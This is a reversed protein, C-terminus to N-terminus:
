SGQLRVGSARDFLMVHQPEFSIKIETGRALKVLGPFRANLSGGDWDLTVLTAPGIPQTMRVTAPSGTEDVRLHEPRIAADVEGPHASLARQLAGSLPVPMRGVMLSEGDRRTALLEIQPSGIFTAVYTTAPTAYIEEPTGVQEIRGQRMVAIRDSISM